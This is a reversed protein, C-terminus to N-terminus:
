KNYFRWYGLSELLLRRALYQANAVDYASLVTTVDKITHSAAVSRLWSTQAIADVINISADQVPGYAWRMKGLTRPPHRLEIRRKPGRITWLLTENLNVGASLLRRELNSLVSPNWKGKIISPTKLSARVELGLEEIVSYAAIICHCFTVHDHTFPSVPMYEAGHFPDMDITLTSFLSISFDYKTLAYIWKRKTSAKAAFACANRLGPMGLFRSKILDREVDELQGLDPERYAVLDNPFIPPDGIILSSAALILNLANQATERSKARIFIERSHTPADDRTSKQIDSRWGRGYYPPSPEKPHPSREVPM